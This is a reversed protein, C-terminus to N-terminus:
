LSICPVFYMYMYRFVHLLICTMYMYLTYVSILIGHIHLPHLCYVHLKLSNRFIIYIRDQLDQWIYLHTNYYM